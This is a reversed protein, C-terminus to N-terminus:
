DNLVSEFRVLDLLLGLGDVKLIDEIKKVLFLTQVVIERIVGTLIHVAFDAHVDVKRLRLATLENVVHYLIITKGVKADDRGVGCFNKPQHFRNISGIQLMDIM